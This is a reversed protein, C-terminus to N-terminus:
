ARFRNVLEHLQESVRQSSRISDASEETRELSRNALESIEAVQRNVEQSVMAQEEVATAMQESMASIKSVAEVIGLLMSESEVVRQLGLEADAAGEEAVVVSAAAQASLSAVIHGINKASDRTNSALLRVEDAVVSFGRGHEGARAAEIAANLALLNTQDSITEISAAARAIADTQQALQKVAQGIDSVTGRLQEISTRTIHAIEVGQNALDSSHDAQGATKQVNESIEHIALSMEQMATAVLETQQTQNIIEGRATETLELGRRSEETVHRSADEIRTLVTDLHARLSMIGVVIQGAVGSQNTYSSVALPHMFVGKLEQIVSELDQKHQYNLIGGFVVLALALWLASVMPSMMYGLIAAPIILAVAILMQTVARPMKLQFGNRRIRAYLKEAREVDVRSPCSRVSEYGVMHGNETVPTVYANVWYFDGNKCRNKVMGMWPRGAKLHQWMVEFSETPMDPHRVINHPQGVLEERSFGSIKEFGDNCHTIVGQLDTGSILKVDPAFHQERQTTSQNNKM